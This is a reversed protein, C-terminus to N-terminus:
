SDRKQVSVKYNGGVEGDTLEVFILWFDCKLGELSAELDNMHGIREVDTGLFGLAALKGTLGM